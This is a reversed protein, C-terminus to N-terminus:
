LADLYNAMAAVGRAKCAAKLGEAAAAGFANAGVVLKKLAPAGGLAAGLAAAGADGMGTGTLDLEELRTLRGTAMAEAIAATGADGLERNDSLTLDELQALHGEAVLAALVRAGDATLRSGFTLQVLGSLRGVLLPRLTALGADTLENGELALRNVCPMAGAEIAEVLPPLAADTLRNDGLRLSYAQTTAGAAHAHRLAAALQAVDADAWACYEFGLLGGMSMLRLFAERYQPICVDTADKGNTFRIGTGAAAQERAMGERMLAEFGDPALPALRDSQCARFVDTWDLAGDGRPLLSLSLCCRRDKRVSSLRREFICWGRKDIPAPNDAGASMAFDCVLTTTYEAGYWVNIGKLGKGYRALQYPTRDDHSRVLKGDADREDPVFGTTHGRQPLSM